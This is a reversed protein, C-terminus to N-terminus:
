GLNCRSVPIPALAKEAISLLHHHHTFFLVQTSRALEALVEFGAQAREDDYNIFLDDALFPLSAGAAVADEVAALRLALFLQDVTGESMGGVPIVNDDNTVGALRSTESDFDVLLQKFRGLTLRSFLQSARVLLPAQKSSRYQAIASRLLAVEARKRVYAEAQEAMEARAIEADAAALASDPGADLRQLDASTTALQGTLSAVHNSFSAIEDELEQSRTGLEAADAADCEALLHELPPGGGAKLIEVRLRELEAEHVRVADSRRIAERLAEREDTDAAAFLPTLRALAREREAHADELHGEADTTQQLLDTRRALATKADAVASALSALVDAPLRDTLDFGCSAAADKVQQAFAEIDRAMSAIRHELGKVEEIEGRLDDLLELQARIVALSQTPDLSAARLAGDWRQSWDASEAEADTLLISASNYEEASARQRATVKERAVDADQAAQVVLTAADYVARFTIDAQIPEGLSQMEAHLRAKSEDRKRKAEATLEEARRAEEAADLARQRRELWIALGKPDLHLDLSTIRKAWGDAVNESHEEAQQLRTRKHDAALNHREIDEDLGVLRASYEAVEFRRDALEDATLLSTEFPPATAAPDVLPEEDRLHRAISRWLSDRDARAETVAESTVAGTDRLLQTRSLALERGRELEGHLDRRSDDLTAQATKHAAEAEALEQNDPVALGRLAEATGRWPALQSIAGTLEATRRITERDASAVTEDIDGLAVAQKVTALLLGIDRPAPLSAREESLATAAAKHKAQANRASTLRADIGGREELLSRVEALRIKQPLGAAATEASNFAWGLERLLGEMRAQHAAHEAKRRPLDDISKDIGGKSERLAQVRDHQDILRQDVIIAEQTDRLKEQRVTALRIEIDAAAVANVVTTFIDAADAPLVAAGKEVEFKAATDRYLAAHPLVRRRREIGSRELECASRKKKLAELNTELQEVAKRLDDWAAPRVQASRQRNRADEFARQAVHYRRDGRGGKTWIEKSEAELQDLIGAIGILGSGAAFIAQGVDDEAEIIARGGQRLRHHDLSFMRSFTEATYGGLLSVLQGDDIAEDDGGLLTGKNGKRRRCTLEVGDAQLVAGVRLLQQDHQFDYSTRGPFGFLLDGVAALTTSKGAENAGFVVQLDLDGSPFELDCGDFHGYKLLQLKSFRM